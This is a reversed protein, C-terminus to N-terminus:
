IFKGKVQNHQLIYWNKTRRDYKFWAKPQYPRSYFIIHVVNHWSEFSVIIDPSEFIVTEAVGACDKDWIVIATDDIDTIANILSPFDDSEVNYVSKSSEYISVTSPM